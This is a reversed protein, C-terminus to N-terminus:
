ERRRFELAVLPILTLAFWAILVMLVERSEHLSAVMAIVFGGAISLLLLARASLIHSVLRIVAALNDVQGVPPAVPAIPSKDEIPQEASFLRLNSPRRSRPPPLEEVGLRETSPATPANESQDQLSM